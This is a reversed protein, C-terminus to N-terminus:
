LAIVREVITEAARPNIFERQNARMKEAKEADYALTNAYEIAEENNGANLSMGHESFYKANCTECGPIANVHVLPVNAVVAETSSLGGPKSIMVDAANMYVSVKKTFEVPVLRDDGSYAENLKRKLDGNRGVLVYIKGDKKLSDLLGGCLGLMNECGIGGTMVLYVKKDQPIGLKERAEAKDLRNTFKEDVPIGSIVINDEPIGVNILHKKDSESTVFYGSLRTEDFFPICTYDTMVGYCPIDFDSDQRIATMAEMGYLHTSIVAEFNNELIYRKLEQAYRSNYWYVPSPLRSASYMDGLKYVVGFVAPTKKIMNNYLSAVRKKTKESKFGVPDAIECQIGKKKMIGQIAYAASNHGEGTSCSLILVKKMM